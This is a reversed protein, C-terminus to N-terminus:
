DRPFNISPEITWWVAIPIRRGQSRSYSISELYNHMKVPDSQEIRGTEQLHGHASADKLATCHLGKLYHWRAKQLLDDPELSTVIRYFADQADARGLCERARGVYFAQESDAVPIDEAASEWADHAKENGLAHFALGLLYFAQADSSDHFRSAGLNTPYETARRFDDAADSYQGAMFLKTGRELLARVYLIRTQYALEAVFFQKTTLLEIAEDLHGAELFIRIVRELCGSNEPAYKLIRDAIAPRNGYAGSQEALIDLDRLTDADAPCVDSAEKMLRYATPVDDKHRWYALALNRYPTHDRVHASRANEWANIADEIRGRVYLMNGLHVAAEPSTQRKLMDLLIDRHAFCNVIGPADASRSSPPDCGLEKAMADFFPDEPPNAQSWMQIIARAEDLLGLEYYLAAADMDEQFSEMKLSIDNSLFSQEWATMRWLSDYQNLSICWEGAQKDHSKRASIVALLRLLPDTPDKCYELASKYEKQRILNSALHYRAVADDQTDLIAQAYDAALAFRALAKRSSLEHETGLLRNYQEIASAPSDLREYARAAELIEDPTEIKKPMASTRPIRDCVKEKISPDYLLLLGADSFVRLSLNEAPVAAEYWHVEGAKQACPFESIIRSADSLLIRGRELSKTLQIGVRSNDKVSIVGEPHAKVFGDTKGVPIWYETFEVLEHPMLMDFDGQTAFRGAQIEMYDGVDETLMRQWLQGMEDQGWFFAKRAPLEEQRAWHAVGYGLDHYYVGFFEDYTEAAFVDCASPHNRAWSLDVGNHMPWEADDGYTGSYIRTMPYCLQTEPTMRVGANTWWYHRHPLSTGNYLRIHQSFRYEGPMLKVEVTFRMGTMQETLGFTISAWGDAHQTTVFPIRSHTYVSHSVPFNFEVGGSIWAGRIAILAPKICDNKYFIERDLLKDYASYLRCGFDPLFTLRLYENELIVAEHPTISRKGTLQDQLRYPYPHSGLRKTFCPNRNEDGTQYTPLEIMDRFVHTPM